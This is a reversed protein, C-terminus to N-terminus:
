RSQIMIKHERYDCLVFVFGVCFWIASSVSIYKSLLVFSFTPVISGVFIYGRTFVTMSQVCRDINGFQQPSLHLICSFILPKNMSM